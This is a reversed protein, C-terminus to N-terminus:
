GRRIGDMILSRAATSPPLHKDQAYRDLRRSEDENLRVVLRVTRTTKKEGVAERHEVPVEHAVEGVQKLAAERMRDKSM